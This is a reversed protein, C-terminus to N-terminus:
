ATLTPVPTLGSDTPENPTIRTALEARSTISLKQYAHTLHTEVTRQTVYLREAIERNNHGAAALTAVRHEAATLADPGTLLDRRPRAGAAKLEDRARRGLLRMGGRRALDLARRLPERALARRNARRLAAGLDVLARTHELQAPSAALLAVAQELRSLRQAAPATAALARLAAGRAGPTGVRNALELQEAALGAATTHDGLRTLAEVAETRWSALVPHRVGLERWRAAADLLDALADEPRHQALRLRARSQLVLPAGLAGGPPDGLRAAALAADAGALDDLEVLADILIHLPWLMIGKPTVPLKYDFALRADAEADRVQGARVCAMARLQSGHALAILWGRPRATDIIADCHARATDLAEFAILVVLTAFTRVLSDTESALLDPDLVPRMLALTEDAPRGDLMSEMAANVRWLELPSPEIAPHALRHHAEAHTDANLWANTVLEAELRAVAELSADGRDALAQRCLEIAERSHGALGLARAGLLAIAGRQEPSDAREVAAHLAAPADPALYAALALGLQLRIDAEGRRDPPPEALARRLFAAASQPAGRASARAAADRLIAVTGAEDSPESRLLHVAIQEPDAAERELMAAADAHWLAREGRPLGAYLAGEVLPHALALQERDDLLGAARLADALRAAEPQALRALRAARRLPTGSGLVAVARALTGAGDPLRSLQRGVSRAVQEPGFTSLRSAV